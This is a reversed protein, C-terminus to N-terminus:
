LNGHSIKGDNNKDLDKILNQTLKEVNIKAPSNGTLILM